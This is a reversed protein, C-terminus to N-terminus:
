GRCPERVVLWRLEGLGCLVCAIVELSLLREEREGCCSVGYDGGGCLPEGM